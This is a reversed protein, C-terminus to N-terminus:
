DKALAAFRKLTGTLDFEVEWRENAFEYFLVCEQDDLDREKVNPFKEV